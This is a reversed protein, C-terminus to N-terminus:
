IKKERCEWKGMFLHATCIDQVHIYDRICTGDPTDFDDGFVSLTTDEPNGGKLVRLAERECTEGLKDVFVRRDDDSYYISEKRNGRVTFHPNLHSRRWL